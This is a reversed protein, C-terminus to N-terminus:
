KRCLCIMLIGKGKSNKFLFYEAYCVLLNLYLLIKQKGWKFYYTADHGLAGIYNMYYLVKNIEFSDKLDSILKEETFSIEHKFFIDYYKQVLLIDNKQVLELNRCIGKKIQIPLNLIFTWFKNFRKGFQIESNPVTLILVGGPNLVRHIESIVKKYDKIHELASNCVILDFTNSKYPLNTASCCNIKVNDINNIKVLNDIRNVRVPDNDLAYVVVSIKSLKVTIEGDGACLDLVRNFNGHLSNMIYFSQIKSALNFRRLKESGDAIESL